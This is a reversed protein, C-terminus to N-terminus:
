LLRKGGRKRRRSKPPQGHHQRLWRARSWKNIRRWQRANAVWHVVTARNTRQWLHLLDVYSITPPVGQMRYTTESKTFRVRLTGLRIEDTPMNPNVVVPYGFLTDPVKSEGLIPADLAFASAVSERTFERLKQWQEDTTQGDHPCDAHSCM